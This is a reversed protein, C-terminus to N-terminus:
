VKVNNNNNNNNNDNNDNDNDDDDDDNDRPVARNEGASRNFWCAGVGGLRWMECQLVKGVIHSTGVVAIKQVSYISYKGPIAEL